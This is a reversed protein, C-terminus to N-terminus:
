GRPPGRSAGFTSEQGSRGDEATRESNSQKVVVRAHRLHWVKAAVNIRKAKREPESPNEELLELAQVSFGSVSGGGVRLVKHQSSGSRSRGDPSILFVLPKQTSPTSTRDEHHFVRERFFCRTTPFEQTSFVTGSFMTHQLVAVATTMNLWLATATDHTCGTPGLTYTTKHM